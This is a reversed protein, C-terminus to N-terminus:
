EGCQTLALPADISVDMNGEHSSVFSHSQDCVVFLCLLPYCSAMSSKPRGPVECARPPKRGLFECFSYSQNEHSERASGSNSDLEHRYCRLLALRYAVEELVNGLIEFPGIFRHSLRARSGLVNGKQISFKLFVRDGVQFIRMLLLEILEPGEILVYGVEAWYIPARDNEVYLVRFSSAQGYGFCLGKVYRGFSFTGRVSWSRTQPYSISYQVLVLEGFSETIRFIEALKLELVWLKKRFLYSILLNIASVVVVWIAIMDKDASLDYVKSVFRLWMKNLAMGCFYQKLDQVNQNVQIFYISVLPRGDYVKERLAKIMLFVYGDEFWVVYGDTMLVSSMHKVTKLMRCMDWLECRGDRQAEKSRYCSTLSRDEYEGLEYPKMGQLTLRDVSGREESGDVNGGEGWCETREEIADNYIVFKECREEDSPLLTFLESLVRLLVDTIIWCAGFFKEGGNVTTPRPWKTIAEVKISGYHHRLKKQGLFRWCLGYIDDHEEESDGLIDMVSALFCRAGHSIVPVDKMALSSSLPSRVYVGTRYYLLRAFDLEPMSQQRRSGSPSLGECLPHLLCLETVEESKCFRFCSGQNFDRNVSDQTSFSTTTVRVEPPENGNGVWYFRQDQGWFDQRKSDYGRDQRGRHEFVRTGVRGRYEM